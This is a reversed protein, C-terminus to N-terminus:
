FDAAKKFILLLASKQSNRGAAVATTIVREMGGGGKSNLTSRGKMKTTYSWGAFVTRNTAFTSDTYLGVLVTSSYQQSDGGEGGLHVALTILL